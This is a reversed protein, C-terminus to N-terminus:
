AASEQDDSEEALIRPLDRGVFVNWAALEGVAHDSHATPRGSKSDPDLLRAALQRFRHEAHEELAGCLHVYFDIGHPEAMRKYERVFRRVWSASLKIENDELLEHARRILTEVSTTTGGSATTSRKHTVLLSNIPVVHRKIDSSQCRRV